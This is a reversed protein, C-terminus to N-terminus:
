ASKRALRQQRLLERIRPRMLEIIPSPEAPQWSRTAEETAEPWREGSHVIVGPKAANELVDLAQRIVRMQQERNGPAGLTQAFPFEVALTRPVGVKQAWFPMM